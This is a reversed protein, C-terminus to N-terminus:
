RQLKSIEIADLDNGKGSKGHHVGTVTVREGVKFESFDASNGGVKLATKESTYVKVDLVPVYQVGGRGRGGPFRGPYPGRGGPGGPGGYRGNGRPFADLVIRFEFIKKKADVKLIQGTTVLRVNDGDKEAEAFGSLSVAGILIILSLIRSRSNLM